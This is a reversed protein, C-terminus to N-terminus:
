PRSPRGAGAAPRRGGLARVASEDRVPVAAVPRVSHRIPELTIAEHDRGGETIHGCGVIRRRAAAAEHSRYYHRELLLRQALSGNRRLWFVSVASAIIMLPTTFVSM